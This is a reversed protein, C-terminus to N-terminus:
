LGLDSLDPAETMFLLTMGVKTNGDPEKEMSVTGGYREDNKKSFGIYSSDGFSSTSTITWGNQPLEKKYYAYIDGMDAKTSWEGGYMAGEGEQDLSTYSIVEMGRMIPFEKPWGAPPREGAGRVEITGTNGEEDTYTATGTGGDEDLNGTTKYTIGDETVTRTKGPCGLGTLALVALTAALARQSASIPM